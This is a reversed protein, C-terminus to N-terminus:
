IESVSSFDEVWPSIKLTGLRLTQRQVYQQPLNRDLSIPAALDYGWGRVQQEIQQELIMVSDLYVYAMRRFFKGDDFSGVVDYYRKNKACM